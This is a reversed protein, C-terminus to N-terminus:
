ILWECASPTWNAIGRQYRASGAAYGGSAGCVCLTAGICLPDDGENGAAVFDTWSRALLTSSQAPFTRVFRRLRRHTLCSFHPSLFSASQGRM